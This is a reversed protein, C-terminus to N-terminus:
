LLARLDEVTVFSGALPPGSQVRAPNEPDGLRDVVLAADSFDDNETYGSITVVTTLGAGRAAKVGNASDEVAICTQPEVAMERLVYEYIDPAPKKQPVIDGAAIVEFWTAIGPVGCHELLAVVNAPTTTTAVALRLGAEKAEKLLRAVGTRLPIQGQALLRTFCQTKRRHLEAIFGDLDAPAKFDRAFREMYYRIREKGGTVALLEGYLEPSWEWSLQMQAFAQNFAIRHGHQETEALTGDVDFILTTLEAM